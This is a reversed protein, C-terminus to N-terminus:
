SDRPSPSTYLLCHRPIEMWNSAVDFFGFIGLTSNWVFRSATELSKQPSLQLVSNIFTTVERLNNFFNHIGAEVFDPTIWQYGRVVPLFVYRDFHYNFRYVTRNFGQWPDDVSQIATTTDALLLREPDFFAPEAEGQQVPATSCGGLFLGIVGLLLVTLVPRKSITM